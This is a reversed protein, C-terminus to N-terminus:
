LSLLKIKFSSGTNEPDKVEANGSCSQAFTLRAFFAVINIYDMDFFGVFHGRNAAFIYNDLGNSITLCFLKQSNLNNALVADIFANIDKDRGHCEPRFDAVQEM